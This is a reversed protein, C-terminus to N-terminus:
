ADHDLMSYIHTVNNHYPVLFQGVWDPPLYLYLLCMDLLLREHKGYHKVNYQERSVGMGPVLLMNMTNYM